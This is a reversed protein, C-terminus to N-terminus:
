CQVEGITQIKLAIILNRIDPDVNQKCFGEILSCTTSTM